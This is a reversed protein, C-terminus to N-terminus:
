DLHCDADDDDPIDDEDYHWGQHAAKHLEELTQKRENEEHM